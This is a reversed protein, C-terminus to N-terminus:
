LIELSFRLMQYQSTSRMYRFHGHKRCFTEWGTVWFSFSKSLQWPALLFSTSPANTTKCAFHCMMTPGLRNYFVPAISSTILHRTTRWLMITYSRSPIQPCNRSALSFSPCLPFTNYYLSRRSRASTIPRGHVTYVQAPTDVQLSRAYPGIPRPTAYTYLLVRTTRATTQLCCPHVITCM